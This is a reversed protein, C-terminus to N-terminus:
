EKLIQYRSDCESVSDKYKISVTQCEPSTKKQYFVFTPDITTDPYGKPSAKLLNSNGKLCPTYLPYDCDLDCEFHLHSGNVQQGTKGYHGIVTNINVVQGKIAVIRDLHYYRVVVDKIRGDTLQCSPYLIVVVNGLVHDYGREIVKGYGCGYLTTKGNKHTCDVGYHTQKKYEKPYWPHKYGVTLWMKNVPLILCQAM